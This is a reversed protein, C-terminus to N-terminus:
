NISQGFQRLQSVKLQSTFENGIGEPNNNIIEYYSSRPLGVEKCADVTTMGKNMHQIVEIAQNVRAAKALPKM